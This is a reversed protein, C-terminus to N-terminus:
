WTPWADPRHRRDPHRLVQQRLPDLRGGPTQDGFLAILNLNHACRRQDAYSLAIPNSEANAATTEPSTISGIYELRRAPETSTTKLNRATSAARPTNAWEREDYM